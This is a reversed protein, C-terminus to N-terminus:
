PAPEARVPELSLVANFPSRSVLTVKGHKLDCARVGRGVCPVPTHGTDDHRKYMNGAVFQHLHLAREDDLRGPPVKM